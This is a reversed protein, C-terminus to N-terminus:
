FTAQRVMVTHIGPDLGPMVLVPHKRTFRSPLFM